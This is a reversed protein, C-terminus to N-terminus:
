KDKDPGKEHKEGDRNDHPDKPPKNPTKEKKHDNDKPLDRNDDNGKGNNHDNDLHSVAPALVPAAQTRTAFSFGSTAIAFATAFLLTSKM